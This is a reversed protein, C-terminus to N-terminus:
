LVGDGHGERLGDGGRVAAVAVTEARQATASGHGDPVHLPPGQHGRGATGVSLVQRAHGVNFVTIASNGDRVPESRVPCFRPSGTNSM